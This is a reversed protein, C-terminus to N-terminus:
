RGSRLACLRELKRRNWEGRHRCITVKVSGPTMYFKPAPQEVVISCAEVVTMGPRRSRLAKVRRFIETYMERKTPFMGRLPDRGRLMSRVVQAAREESVWFRSSPMGAVKGYVESMRIYPVSEMYRDCARMLDDARERAFEVAAGAHKM